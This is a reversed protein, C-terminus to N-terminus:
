GHQVGRRIIGVTALLAPAGLNVVLYLTPWLDPNGAQAPDPTLARVYALYTSQMSIYYLALMTYSALAATRELLSEYVEGFPALACLFLAFSWWGWVVLPPLGERIAQSGASFELIGTSVWLILVAAFILM